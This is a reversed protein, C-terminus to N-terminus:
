HLEELHVANLIIIEGYVDWIEKQVIEITFKQVPIDNFVLILRFWEWLIGLRQKTYSNCLSYLDSYFRSSIRLLRTWNTCTHLKRCYFSNIFLYIDAMRKSNRLINHRTSTRLSVNWWSILVSFACLLRKFIIM